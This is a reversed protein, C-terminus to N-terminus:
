TKAKQQSVGLRSYGIGLARQQLQITVGLESCDASSDDFDFGIPASAESLHFKREPVSCEQIAKRRSPQITAAPIVMEM